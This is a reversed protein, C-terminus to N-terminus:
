LTPDSFDALQAYISDLNGSSDQLVTILDQKKTRSLLDAELSLFYGVERTLIRHYTRDLTAEIRATELTANIAEAYATEEDILAQNPASGNKGKKDEVGYYNQLITSTQSQTYTLVSSVNSSIARLSSSKIKPNYTNIVTMLNNSRQNIRDILDREPDKQNSLIAAIIIVFFVGVLAIILWKVLQAPIPLGDFLSGSTQKAPRTDASIQNLYDMNNM